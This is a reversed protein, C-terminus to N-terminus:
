GGTEVEDVKVHARGFAEKLHEFFISGVPEQRRPFDVLQPHDISRSQALRIPELGKNAFEAEHIIPACFAPRFEAPGDAGVVEDARLCVRLLSIELSAIIALPCLYLGINLSIVRQQRGPLPQPESTVKSGWM